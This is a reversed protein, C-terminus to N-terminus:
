HGPVELMEAYVRAAEPWDKQGVAILFRRFQRVAAADAETLTGRDVGAAVTDEVSAPQGRVRRVVVPVGYTRRGYRAM